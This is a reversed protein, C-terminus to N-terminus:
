GNATQARSREVWWLMAVIALWGVFFPWRPAPVRRMATPSAAAGAAAALNRTREAERAAALAVGTGDEGVYFPWRERGDVLTHWGPEAPWYAACRRADAGEILLLVKPGRPPEIAAEEGLGCLVSRLAMRADAPIEPRAHSRARAVTALARSWLSGFKAADGGLAIRYTDTAWWIAVRGLGEGRWLAAPTGDSGRLLPAADDSEVLLARRSLRTPTNSGGAPTELAFAQPVDAARVRFGLARWHSAVDDPLAGTVRLFLGLGDRTAARLRERAGADLAKWAREDVIAIDTHALADADMAASGDQMAIGDSLVIRSALGVGADAAWRRLYKLEPDPAGALVLVRLADGPLVFVPQPLREVIAGDRDQLYLEFLATGETRVATELAFGGDKALPANAVVTGAPDRLEIRGGGNGEVRGRLALMSGARVSTPAHLEVIGAPLPGADFAIPLSRAADLDRMPLGGGVIRLHSAQPHRRLATGLDPTREIGGAADVGPLAITAIGSPPHAIQEATAGPTLVVLTGAVFREEVGPPFLALYILAAAALQLAIRLARRPADSRAARWVGVAAAIAILLMAILPLNV